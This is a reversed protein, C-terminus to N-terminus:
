HGPSGPLLVSYLDEQPLLNNLFFDLTLGPVLSRPQQLTVLLCESTHGGRSAWPAGGTSVM